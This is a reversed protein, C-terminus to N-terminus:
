GMGGSVQSGNGMVEDAGLWHSLSRDLLSELHRVDPAFRLRLDRLTAPCVPPIVADSEVVNLRRYVDRAGIGAATSWLWGFGPSRSLQYVRDKLRVLPQYRNAFSTNFRRNLAPSEFDEDIGLFSYIERAVEAPRERIDEMLAVYIRDPPFWRLWNALHKGYLGQEIYMPNNALGAEFSLDGVVHGLRVEHKHNSVAREVPDRLTLLLKVDPCYDSIRQPASPDHFYSPSVEGTCTEVASYEFHREYWQYGYDFRHSFFDIEKVAPLSVQPHTALLRHVWTSACKQAGLGIFTPKM